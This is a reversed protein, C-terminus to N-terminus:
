TQVTTPSRKKRVRFFYVLILAIAAAVLIVLATEELYGPGGIPTTNVIFDVSLESTQGLKDFAKVAVTHAGDSLGELTFSQATGVNIPPNTDLTLEFHDVGLGADTGNWEVTVRPSNIQAGARPSIISLLPPGIDLLITDNYTQTNNATDLFSVYITKIGDSATLNWTKSTSYAEVASYTAGDHSFQMEAIGSLSDTASLSLLVTISTAYDDGNNILISGTPPTKDLKINTLVHHTEENDVNDV